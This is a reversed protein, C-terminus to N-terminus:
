ARGGAVAKKRGFNKKLAEQMKQKWLVMLNSYEEKQVETIAENMSNGILKKEQAEVIQGTSTKIFVNTNILSQITYRLEFNDITYNTLFDKSQTEAKVRLAKTREGVTEYSRPDEGLLTLLMDVKEKNSKIELYIAMAKDSEETEKLGIERATVSDYIYFKKLQNGRAKERTEAVEPHTLAHRYRIYDDINLPMNDASLEEKNSKRLGIELDKGGLFPIRTILNSYYNRVAERFKRDNEQYDIINPLLLAEETFDLGSGV